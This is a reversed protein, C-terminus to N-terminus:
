FASTSRRRIVSPQTPSVPAATASPKPLQPPHPVPTAGAAPQQQPPKSANLSGIPAEGRNMARIKAINNVRQQQAPNLKVANGQADQTRIGGSYTGSLGVDAAVKMGFQYPTMLENRFIAATQLNRKM